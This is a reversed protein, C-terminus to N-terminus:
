AKILQYVTSLQTYGAAFNLHLSPDRHHAERFVERNNKQNILDIGAKDIAVPNGSFLVGINPSLIPGSDKDCDCDKTINKMISIYFTNKPFNNIVAAAAQALLDDFLATKPALCHAPCNIECLSCGWCTELDINAKKDIIKIANAPCLRVCTGCGRCDTIIQPKSLNHETSKTVKSVGGMGLNKIAGGFGTASHGKTHSIVLVNQAEILERLVQATFDKTKIDVYNDSILIDGLKDYGRNKAM